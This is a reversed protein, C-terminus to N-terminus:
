AHRSYIDTVGVASILGSLDFCREYDVLYPQMTETLHKVANIQLKSQVRSM